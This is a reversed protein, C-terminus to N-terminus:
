AAMPAHDAMEYAPGQMALQVLRERIDSTRITDTRSIPKKPTQAQLVQSFFLLAILLYRMLDSKYLQKVPTSSNIM